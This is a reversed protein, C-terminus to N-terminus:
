RPILKYPTSWAELLRAVLQPLEYEFSFIDYTGDCDGDKLLMIKYDLLKALLLELTAGRSLSWGPLMIIGDCSLMHILSLKLSALSGLTPSGGSETPCNVEYGRSRFYAAIKKFYPWNRDPKGAMPGALYYKM